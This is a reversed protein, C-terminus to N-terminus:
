PAYDPVHPEQGYDLEQGGHGSDSVVQLVLFGPPGPAQEILLGPPSLRKQAMALRPPYPCPVPMRANIPCPTPVAHAHAGCWAGCGTVILEWLVRRARTYPTRAHHGFYVSDELRLCTGAQHGQHCIKTKPSVSDDICALAFYESQTIGAHQPLHEM